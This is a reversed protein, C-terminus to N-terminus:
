VPAAEVERLEVYEGSEGTMVCTLDTSAAVSFQM